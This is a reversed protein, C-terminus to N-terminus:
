GAHGVGFDGGEILAGGGGPLGVLALEEPGNVVAPFGREVGLGVFEFGEGSLGEGDAAAVVGLGVGADGVGVGCVSLGEVAM